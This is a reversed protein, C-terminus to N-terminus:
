EKRLQYKSQTQKGNVPVCCTMKNANREVDKEYKKQQKQWNYVRTIIISIIDATLFYKM